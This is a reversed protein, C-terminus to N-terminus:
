QRVLETIPHRRREYSPYYFDVLVDKVHRVATMGFEALVRQFLDLDNHRRNPRVGGQRQNIECRQPHTTRWLSHLREFISSRHLMENTDVYQEWGLKTVDLEDHSFVTWTNGRSVLKRGDQAISRETEEPSYHNCSDCHVLQLNPDGLLTALLLRLFDRRWENDADLYAIAEGNAVRLADNRPEWEIPGERSNRPNTLLAVRDDLRSYYRAIAGTSDTSADDVVIVELHSHSQNLVSEIAFPLTAEANFAPMVVSVLTAAELSM